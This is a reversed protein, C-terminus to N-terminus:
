FGGGVWLIASVVHLFKVISYWDMTHEQMEQDTVADVAGAWLLPRKARLTNRFSTAAAPGINRRWWICGPSSPAPPTPGDREPM